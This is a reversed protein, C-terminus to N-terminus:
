AAKKNASEEIRRRQEDNLLEVLWKQELFRGADYWHNAVYDVARPLLEKVEKLTLGREQEERGHRYEIVLTHAYLYNTTGDRNPDGPRKLSEILLRREGTTMPAEDPFVTGRIAWLALASNNSIGIIKLALNIVFVRQEQTLRRDGLLKSCYYDDKIRSCAKKVLLDLEGAELSVGARLVKYCYSANKSVEAIIGRREAGRPSKELSRILRRINSVVM